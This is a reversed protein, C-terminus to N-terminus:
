TFKISQKMEGKFSIDLPKFLHTKTESNLSSHSAPLESTTGLPEFCETPIVPVIKVNSFM